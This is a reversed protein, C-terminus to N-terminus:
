WSNRKIGNKDKKSDNNIYIDTTNNNTNTSINCRNKSQRITRSLINNINHM